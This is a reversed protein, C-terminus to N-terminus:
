PTGASEHLEVITAAGTAVLPAVLESIKSHHTFLLVQTKKGLEALLELAALSREDDFHVLIDDVIFPIPEAEECYKKVSALRFSLFLQDRTGDSMADVSVPEGNVRVGVVVPEGKDDLETVIGSFRGLTAKQFFGGARLLLPDPQEDRIRAVSDTLFKETLKLEIWDSISSAM